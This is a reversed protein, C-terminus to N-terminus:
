LNNNGFLVILYIINDKVYVNYKIFKSPTRGCASVCSLGLWNDDKIKTGYFSHIVKTYNINNLDLSDQFLTLDKIYTPSIEKNYSLKKNKLFDNVETTPLNEQSIGNFTILILFYFIFFKM